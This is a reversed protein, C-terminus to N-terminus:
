KKEHIYDKNVTLQSEKIDSSWFGNTELHYLTESWKGNVFKKYASTVIWYKIVQEGSLVVADGKKFKPKKM